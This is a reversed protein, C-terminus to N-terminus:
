LNRRYLSKRMENMLKDPIKKPLKNGKLYEIIFNMSYIGCESNGYQHRNQNYNFRININNKECKKMITKIFEAILPPPMIGYSDYYLIRKNKKSLDIITAVWHSGPQNHKDLNFIIGIINKNKDLQKVNINSLQCHIGTPCDAPVPGIFILNKYLKEYQKMVLNIDSTTLWTYKNKEWEKPMKPRFTEHLIENNKISKVFDQDIWCWDTKCKNEMRKQIEKWLEPKTKNSIIIKNGKNTNIEKNYAKAIKILSDKSYCIKDDDGKNDKKGKKGKHPACYM